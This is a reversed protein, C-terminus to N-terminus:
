QGSPDFRFVVIGEPVPDYGRLQLVQDRYETVVVANLSFLADGIRVTVQPDSQWIKAWSQAPWWGADVYRHSQVHLQGNFLFCELQISHPDAPRSEIECITKEAMVDTWNDPVPQREGQLKGGPVPGCATIAILAAMAVLRIM